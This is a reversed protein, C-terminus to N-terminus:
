LSSKDNKKKKFINSKSLEKLGVYPVDPLVIEEPKGNQVIDFIQNSIEEKGDVIMELWEGKKNKFIFHGRHNRLNKMETKDNAIVLDSGNREYSDKAIDILEKVTYGDEFKFSILFCNPNWERIHSLIKPTKYIRERLSEIFAETDTSKLKTKIPKFGFDSVAMPHIVVDMHPVLEEMVKYVSEVDTVEYFHVQNRNWSFPQEKEAGFSGKVYVYYIEFLPVPNIRRHSCDNNCDDFKRYIMHALKGSSINTLVRVGDLHERTGGATILVKKVKYPPFFLKFCRDCVHYLTNGKKNSVGISWGGSHEKCVECTFGGTGISSPAPITPDYGQKKYKEIIKLLESNEM